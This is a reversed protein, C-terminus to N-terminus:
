LLAYLEAPLGIGTQRRSRSIPKLKVVERLQFFSTTQPRGRYACVRCVLTRPAKCSVDTEQLGPKREKRNKLGLSMKSSIAKQRCVRAFVQVRQEVHVALVHLIDVAPFRVPSQAFTYHLAM